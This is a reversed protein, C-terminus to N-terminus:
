NQCTKKVASIGGQYDKKCVTCSFYTDGKKSKALWLQFETKVLWENRFKHVFKIKTGLNPSSNKRKLQTAEESSSFACDSDSM